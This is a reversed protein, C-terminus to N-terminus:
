RLSATWRASKSDLGSSPAPELMDGFTYCFSVVTVMALGSTHSPAMKVSVPAMVEDMTRQHHSGKQCRKKSDGRERETETKTEVTETERQRQGGGGRERERERERKGRRKM